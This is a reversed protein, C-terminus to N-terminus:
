GTFVLWCNNNIKIGAQYNYLNQKSSSTHNVTKKRSNKFFVPGGQLRCFLLPYIYISTATKWCGTGLFGLGTDIYHVTEVREEVFYWLWSHKEHLDGVVNTEADTMDMYHGHVVVDMVDKLCYKISTFLTFIQHPKSLCRHPPIQHFPGWYSIKGGQFHLTETKLQNVLPHKQMM